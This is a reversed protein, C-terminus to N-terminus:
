FDIIRITTQDRGGFLVQREEGGGLGKFVREIWTEEEFRILM